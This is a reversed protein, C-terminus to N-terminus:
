CTILLVRWVLKVSKGLTDLDAMGTTTRVLGRFVVYDVDGKLFVPALAM